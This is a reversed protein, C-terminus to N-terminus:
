EHREKPSPPIQDFRDKQFPYTISINYKSETHSYLFALFSRRLLEPLLDMQRKFKYFYTEVPSLKEKM